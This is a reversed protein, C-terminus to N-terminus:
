GHPPSRCQRSTQSPPASQVVTIQVGAQIRREPMKAGIRGASASCYFKRAAERLDEESVIHHRDFISRTKHGSIQVAVREPLGARIMELTNKFSM